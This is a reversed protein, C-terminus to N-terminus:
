KKDTTKDTSKKLDPVKTGAGTTSGSEAGADAPRKKKGAKKPAPKVESKAGLDVTPEKTAQAPPAAQDTCGMGVFPVAALSLIAVLVAFERAFRM